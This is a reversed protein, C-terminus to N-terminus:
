EEKEEECGLYTFSHKQMIIGNLIYIDQIDNLITMMKHFVDRDTKYM